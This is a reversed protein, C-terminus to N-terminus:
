GADAELTECQSKHLKMSQYGPTRGLKQCKRFDEVMRKKGCPNTFVHVYWTHSIIEWLHIDYIYINNYIVYIYLLM